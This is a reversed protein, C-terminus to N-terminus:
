KKVNKINTGIPTSTSQAEKRMDGFGGFQSTDEQRECLLLDYKTKFYSQWAKLEINSFNSDVLIMLINMQKKGILMRMCNPMLITQAQTLVFSLLGLLM